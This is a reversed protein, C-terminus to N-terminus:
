IGEYLIKWPADTNGKPRVLYIRKQVDGRYNNSVYDQNFRAVVIERDNLSNPYRYFSVHSLNIEQFTKGRAVRRKRKAPTQACTFIYRLRM